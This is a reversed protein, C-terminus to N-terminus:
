RSARGPRVSRAWSCACTLTPRSGVCPRRARQPHSGPHSCATDYRHMTHHLTEGAPPTEGTLSVVAGEDAAGIGNVLGEVVDRHHAFVVVKQARMAQQVLEVAMPVKELATERRVRALDSFGVGDAASDLGLEDASFKDDDLAATSASAVSLEKLLAKERKVVAKDSFPLQQRRKPPLQLLVQDKTRRLLLRGADIDRHLEAANSVGSFDWGWATQQPDCYRNRFAFYSVLRHVHRAERDCAKLLPFLEIPHNLVPTGTLLLLRRCRGQLGAAKARSGKLEGLIARTRRTDPSKLYHAQLRSHWRHVSMKLLLTLLM